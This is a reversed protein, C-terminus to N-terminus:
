AGAEEADQEARLRDYRRGLVDPLFAGFLIGLALVAMPLAGWQWGRAYLIVAFWAAAVAAVAAGLQAVAPPEGEHSSAPRERADPTDVIVRPLTSATAHHNPTIATM